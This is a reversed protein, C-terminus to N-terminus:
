VAAARRPRPPPRSLRTVAARPTRRPAIAAVRRGSGNLRLPSRRCAGFEQLVEWGFRPSSKPLSSVGCGQGTVFQQNAEFSM